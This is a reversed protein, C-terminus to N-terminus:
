ISVARLSLFSVGCGLHRSLTPVHTRGKLDQANEELEFHAAVM